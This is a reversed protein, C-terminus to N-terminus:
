DNKLEFVDSICEHDFTDKKVEGPDSNILIQNSRREFLAYESSEIDMLPRNPSTM